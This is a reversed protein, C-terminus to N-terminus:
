VKKKMIAKVKDNYAYDLQIVGSINRGWIWVYDGIELSAGEFDGVEIQKLVGSIPDEVRAFNIRDRDRRMKNMTFLTLGQVFSKLMLAVSVLSLFASPKKDLEKTGVDRVIGEWNPPGFKKYYATPLSPRTFLGSPRMGGSAGTALTSGPMPIAPKRIPPLKPISPPSSPGVPIKKPPGSGTVTSLDALCFQCRRRGILNERNCRPCKLM